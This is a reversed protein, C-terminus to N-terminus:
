REPKKNDMDVYERKYIDICLLFMSLLLPGFIVGWFGFLSLGIIVGFITVLPHTDAISKQLLFRALNDVGSIIVAGYIALGIAAPWNGTIALYVAAPLWVITTGVLPLITSFCTLIGLVLPFPAGSVLYGIFAVVGQIMALLPIGIANAKTMTKIENLIEKKNSNEFPLLSAIYTELRTGGILLFYLIFIMFVANIFFSSIGDIIKQLYMTAKGTVAAINDSSLLDYGTKDQITTVLLQIENILQQPDLNVMQLKDVFLWVIASVPIIFCLVVEVLIIIAAVSRRIKKKNVLNNAQNRVLVYIAFAGLFSSIYPTLKAFIIIGLCLILVILSIKWNKEQMNM